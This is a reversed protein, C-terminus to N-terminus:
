LVMKTALALCAAVLGALIAKSSLNEEAAVGISLVVAILLAVITVLIRM